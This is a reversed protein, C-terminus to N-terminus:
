DFARSLSEVHSRGLEPEFIRPLSVRPM